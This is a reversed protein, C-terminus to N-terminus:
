KYKITIFDQSKSDFQLKKSIIGLGWVYDFKYEIIIINPKNTNLLLYYKIYKTNFLLLKKPNLYQTPTNLIQYQILTQPNLGIGLCKMGIGIGIKNINFVM